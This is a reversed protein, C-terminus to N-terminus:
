HTPKLFEDLNWQYNVRKKIGSIKIANGNMILDIENFSVKNIKQCMSSFDTINQFYTREVGSKEDRFNLIFGATIGDYQSLKKLSKIQHYKIMKTSKKDNETEYSMSKYKTTKLEFAYLIHSKSDFCFFDCPNNWTFKTEKSNNYSQATDKLRHIMCYKPISKKFNDEFQKGANKMKKTGGYIDM